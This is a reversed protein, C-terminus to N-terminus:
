QPKRNKKEHKPKEQKMDHIMQQIENELVDNGTVNLWQPDDCPLGEVTTNWRGDKGIAALEQAQAHHDYYGSGFNDAWMKPFRIVSKNPTMVLPLIDEPLEEEAGAETDPPHDNPGKPPVIIEPERLNFLLISEGDRQKYMGEARYRYRPNWGCIEYLTNLYALGHIPRVTYGNAGVKAWKVANRSEKSSPRVAFILRGPHLLMEVYLVKGFNHICESSFWLISNSFSVCRKRSVNLFQSRVVEFGRLDFDGAQAKVGLPTPPSDGDDEGRVSGSATQYDHPRFASWRPNIVVFGKLVGDAIVKLNPLIGKNGYKSNNILHHVAFFDDRSIIAEHHDHTQYKNRQGTNKKSKHNRYNPTWTKRALVTGCHRENQLIGLVSEPSWKDSGTKTKRKLVTLQEAIDRCTYGGLYMFFVLRVTKAEEENIVLNGDEDQDYGLLPPTLYHQNKFRMEISANMLNSKNRSEGQAFISLFQLPMENTPNLTYINEMEFFIGVPPTLEALEQMHKLGEVANRAFRSVCKVVILDIKGARCDSMLKLFGPRNRTATGSIGEDDYIGVLRWNKHRGVMETYQSKQLEFSPTQEPNDTSVRVYVAVRKERLDAFLNEQPACTAPILEAQQTNVRQYRARVKERQEKQSGARTASKKSENM